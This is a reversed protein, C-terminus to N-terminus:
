PKPGIRYAMTAGSWWNPTHYECAKELWRLFEGVGDTWLGADRLANPLRKRYDELLLKGSAWSTHCSAMYLPLGAEDAWTQMDWPCIAHLDSLSMPVDLLLWLTQWIYGRPNLLSPSSTVIYGGPALWDAVYETLRLWPDDMHELVGQMVIRDFRQPSVDALTGAVWTVGEPQRRAIEIAVASYDIATVVGYRAAIAASLRGEGCGIELVRQGKWPSGLTLLLRSEEWTDVLTHQSAYGAAYQADYTARLDHNTPM